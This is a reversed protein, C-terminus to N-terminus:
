VHPPRPPVPPIPPVPPVPMSETGPGGMESLPKDADEEAGRAVVGGNRVAKKVAPDGWYTIGGGSEVAASLSKRSTTFIRGGSYIAAHVTDAAVARIDIMGGQEVAADISSQAPFEGAAQVIGGNSVAVGDLRPTVVEIQRREEHHCSSVGHEIILREERVSVRACELGGSVLSVRQVAGYRVIVHGGDNLEVTRFEGVPIDTAAAVSLAVVLSAFLSVIRM